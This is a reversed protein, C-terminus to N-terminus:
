CMYDINTCCGTYGNESFERGSEERERERERCCIDLRRDFMTFDSCFVM